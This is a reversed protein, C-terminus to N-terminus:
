PTLSFSFPQQVMQMVKRGGGLEAPLFRTMVLAERVAQTFLPDSSKLVKFTRMVVSGTTDVVFQALVEGQINLDRLQKPYRPQGFGRIQRVPKKVQFEFLVQEIQVVFQRQVFDDAGVTLTDSDVSSTGEPVFRLVVRAPQPLNAYFVGTTDTRSEAVVRGSDGLVRVTLGRLPLRTTRDIVRGAVTQGNVQSAAVLM